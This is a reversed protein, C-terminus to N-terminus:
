LGMCGAPTACALGSCKMKLIRVTITDWYRTIINAGAGNGLGVVRPVRLNDLISVLNLGIDKSVCQIIYRVLFPSFVKMKPFKFDQPLDAAGPEQGPIVVHIFLARPYITFNKGYKCKKGKGSIRWALSCSLTSGTSSPAALIM